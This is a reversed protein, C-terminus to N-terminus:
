REGNKIYKIGDYLDKFFTYRSKLPIRFTYRLCRLLAGWYGHLVFLVAGKSRRVCVDTNFRSGTTSRPTEVVTLPIYRAHLGNKLAEHLFVEEEGCALYASGIGFRTDFRPLRDSRRFAIELSSVYFGKPCHPYRFTATPYNKLFHGMEDVMQLTFLDDDPYASFADVLHRFYDETYRADDDSLLLYDGTAAELAHNRNAALGKGQHILIRVDERQELSAPIPIATTGSQQWSILYKISDIPSLLSNELKNIGEDITCILVELIPKM